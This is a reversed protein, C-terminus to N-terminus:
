GGRVQMVSALAKELEGNEASSMLLNSVRLRLEEKGQVNSSAQCPRYLHGCNLWGFVDELFSYQFCNATELLM